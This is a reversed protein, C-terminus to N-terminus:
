GIRGMRGLHWSSPRPRLAFVIAAMATGAANTWVLPGTAGPAGTLGYALANGARDGDSSGDEDWAETMGSPHGLDGSTGAEEGAATVLMARAKTTTVSPVEISEVWVNGSSVQGTVDVPDDPDVGRFVILGGAIDDSGSFSYTPPEVPEAVKYFARVFRSSFAVTNEVIDTWGAPLLPHSPSSFCAVLLDGGQTASPKSLVISDSSSWGSSAGVVSVAM